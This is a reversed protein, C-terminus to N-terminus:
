ARNERQAEGDPDDDHPPIYIYDDEDSSDEASEPGRGAQPAAGASIAARPRRGAAAAAAAAANNFRFRRGCRPCNITRVAYKGFEEAALQYTQRCHPCQLVFSQLM